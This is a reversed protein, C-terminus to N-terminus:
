EEVSSYGSSLVTTVTFGNLLIALESIHFLFDIMKSPSFIKLQSNEKKLWIERHYIERFWQDVARMAFM